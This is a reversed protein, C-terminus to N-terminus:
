RWSSIPFDHDTAPAPLYEQTTVPHNIWPAIEDYNRIIEHLPRTNQKVHSTKVTSSPVGLFSFVRDEFVEQPNEALREYELLLSQPPCEELLKGYFTKIDLCYGALEAISISINKPPIFDKRWQWIDTRQAIKLSVFQEILSRRYLIIFRAHPYIELLDEPSLRHNELHTKILKAGCIKKPCANISHRVHRLVASKSVHNKRLGYAMRHNLIEGAFSAEPMSNLLDLLLNSGTRRTSLIFVPEKPSRQLRYRLSIKMRHWSRKRPLKTANKLWHYLSM